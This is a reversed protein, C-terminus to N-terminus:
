LMRTTRKQRNSVNQPVLVSLSFKVSSTMSLTGDLSHAHACLGNSSCVCSIKFLVHINRDLINACLKMCTTGYVSSTRTFHEHDPARVTPPGPEKFRSFGRNSRWQTHTVIPWLYQRRGM